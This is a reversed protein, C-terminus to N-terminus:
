KEAFMYLEKLAVIIAAPVVLTMLMGLINRLYGGVYAVNALVAVGYGAVLVLVVSAILFPITEKAKINVFGVIFGIIVILSVVVSSYTGLPVIGGLVALILGILFAYKGVLVLGNKKAM